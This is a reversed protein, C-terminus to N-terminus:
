QLVLKCWRGVRRVATGLDPLRSMRCWLDAHFDRPSNAQVVVLAPWLQLVNACTKATRSCQVQDAGRQLAAQLRRQQGDLGNGHLRGQERRRFMVLGLAYLRRGIRGALGGRQAIRNFDRLLHGQLGRQALLSLGEHPM